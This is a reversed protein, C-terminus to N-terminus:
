ESDACNRLAEHLSIGAERDDEIRGRYVDHFPVSYYKILNKIEALLSLASDCDAFIAAAEYRNGRTLNQSTVVAVTHLSNHLCVIKSHNDALYCHEITQAIFPWLKLTKNVAKFDLVVTADTIVGKSRMFFLRRLFEESVSFSSVVLEASGTYRACFEIIDAVQVANSLFCQRSNEGLPKIIDEIRTALKM